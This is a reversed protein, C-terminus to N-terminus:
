ECEVRCVEERLDQSKYVIHWAIYQTLQCSANLQSLSWFATPFSNYLQQMGHQQDQM